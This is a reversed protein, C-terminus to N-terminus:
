NAYKNIVDALQNIMYPKNIVENCGAAFCEDREEPLALGTIAVIPQEYGQTRLNRVFDFGQRTKDLMLDVFILDPNGDLASIADQVTSAITVRHSTARVYRQVLQADNPEDELYLINM